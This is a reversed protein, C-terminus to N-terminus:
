KRDYLAQGARWGAVAGMPGGLKNGVVAGAVQCTSRNAAAIANKGGQKDGCKMQIAGKVHGVGPTSNVCKKALDM